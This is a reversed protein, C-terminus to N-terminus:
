SWWLARSVPSGYPGVSLRNRILSAGRYVQIGGERGTEEEQGVQVGRM